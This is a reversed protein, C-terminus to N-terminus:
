SLLVLFCISPQFLHLINIVFVLVFGDACQPESWLIRTAFRAMLRSAFAVKRYVLRDSFVFPRSEALVNFFGTPQILVFVDM